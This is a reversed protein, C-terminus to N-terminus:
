KRTRFTYIKFNFNIYVFRYNYNSLWASFHSTNFIYYQCKTGIFQCIQTPNKCCMDYHWYQIALITIDKVVMQDNGNQFQCFGYTNLAEVSSIPDARQQHNKKIWFSLSISKDSTYFYRKLFQQINPKLDALYLHILYNFYKCNLRLSVCVPQDGSTM